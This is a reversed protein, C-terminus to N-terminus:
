ENLVYQLGVDPMDIQIIDLAAKIRAGDDQQVLVVPVQVNKWTFWEDQELFSNRSPHGLLGCEFGPRCGGNDVIVVGIGGAQTM